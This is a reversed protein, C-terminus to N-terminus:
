RRRVFSCTTELFTVLNRTLIQYPVRGQSGEAQDVVVFTADAFKTAEAASMHLVRRYLVHVQTTLNLEISGRANAMMVLLVGLQVYMPATSCARELMARTM